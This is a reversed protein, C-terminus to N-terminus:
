PANAARDEYFARCRAMPQSGLWGIMQQTYVTRAEDVLHFNTDFFDEADRMADLPRGVWFLGAQRAHHPLTEYFHAETLREVYDRQFLMPPPMFVPCAGMELVEDRFRRLRKWDYSGARLAEGYTEPPLSTLFDWHRQEREALSTHTQDGYVDLRHVGYDGGVTFGDPVGRYGELIRRYSTHAFVELSRRFPLQLFTDPYSNAWYVLSSSVAEEKNYLPYELPLLVLDGPEIVALANHLIVPLSIGANVGLNVAPHGYTEELYRSNVGFMAASGAVVLTKPSPLVQALQQKYSIAEHIWVNNPHQRGLQGAWFAVWLLLVCTAGAAIGKFFSSM